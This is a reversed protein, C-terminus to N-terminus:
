PETRGKKLKLTKLWAETLCAKMEEDSPPTGYKKQIYMILAKCCVHRVLWNFACVVAVVILIVTIM